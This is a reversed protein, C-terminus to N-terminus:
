LFTCELKGNRKSYIGTYNIYPNSFVIALPFFVNWSLIRKCMNEQKLQDNVAVVYEELARKM